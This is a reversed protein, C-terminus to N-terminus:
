VKLNLGRVLPLFLFCLYDIRISSIWLSYYFFKSKLAISGLLLYPSFFAEALKTIGVPNFRLRKLCSDLTLSDLADLLEARQFEALKFLTPPVLEPKLGESLSLRREVRLYNSFM